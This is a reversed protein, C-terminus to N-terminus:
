AETRPCERTIGGLEYLLAASTGPGGMDANISCRHEAVRTGLAGYVQWEFSADDGDFRLPIVALEAISRARAEEIRGIGDSSGDDDIDAGRRREVAGTDYLKYWTGMEEASPRYVPTVRFRVALRGHDNTSCIPIPTRPRRDRVVEELWPFAGLSLRSTGRELMAVLDFALRLRELVALPARALPDAGEISPWRIEIDSIPDDGWCLRASEAGVGVKAGLKQLALPAIVIRVADILERAAIAAIEARGAQQLVVRHDGLPLADAGVVLERAGSGSSSTFRLLARVDSVAMRYIM